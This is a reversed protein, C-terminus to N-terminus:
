AREYKWSRSKGEKLWVLMQEIRRERTVARKAEQIWVIYEKKHSPSLSSFHNKATSDRNLAAMMERPMAPVKVATRKRAVRAGSDNLAMAEKIYSRLKTKAPLDKLSCIRGLHGMATEKKANEMLAPDRMLSAKWFGFVAHENFSAM